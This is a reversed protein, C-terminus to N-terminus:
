STITRLIDSKIDESADGNDLRTAADAAYVQIDLFSVDAGVVVNTTLLEHAVDAILNLSKSDRHDVLRDSLDLLMKGIPVEIKGEM